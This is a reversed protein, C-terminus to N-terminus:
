TPEFHDLDAVSVCIRAQYMVECKAISDTKEYKANSEEAVSSEKSCHGEDFVVADTRWWIGGRRLGRWM